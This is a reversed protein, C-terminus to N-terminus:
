TVGGIGAAIGPLVINWGDMADSGDALMGVFGALGNTWGKIVDASLVSHLDEMNAKLNASAAASSELYIAHKEDAVGANQVAGNVLDLTEGYGEMLATFRNLNRTGAFQTAIYRQTAVDLSDWKPYLTDLIDGFSMFGTQTNYMEIGAKALAKAVDNVAVMAGDEDEFIKNMGASTIKTYRSIISNLSTGITEASERTKASILAIYSSTKEISLGVDAASAATRQMAIGIDSADSAVADGMYAWADAIRKAVGEVTEGERRFSNITATMTELATDTDLGSIQSFKTIQELRALVEAEDTVGQRYIDAATGALEASSASLDKALSRITDGVQEAQQQTMYTVIRIENLADDYEKVYKVADKWM